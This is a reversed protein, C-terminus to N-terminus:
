AADARLSSTRRQRSGEADDRRVIRPSECESVASRVSPGCEFASQPGLTAPRWCNRLSPASTALSCTEGSDALSAKLQKLASTTYTGLTREALGRAKCYSTYLWVAEDFSAQPFVM